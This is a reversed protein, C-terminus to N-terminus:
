PSTTSTATRASTTSAPGTGARGIAIRTRTNALRAQVYSLKLRYPEHANLRNRKAYVDPLLRRDHALSAACSRRSAWWGRRSRCSRSCSSWCARTSGCPGTPTCSWCRAPSPPRSTRTATATAAWGAAWCSRAPTRPSRHVRRRAGRPRARGAPRARRRPRAAGHVLGRRPGRRRRDAQRPAARRDALAPRRVRRAPRRGGRRRARGGVRRLIALVSQRSAETPHATFVPRLELRALVANVEDPDASALRQMIGHLPARGALEAARHRQEAINALQFFQSFASRWGCPPARTSARSCPPSPPTTVARSPSARSEKRVQEVLELLDPGGHLAITQGLMTSLRRIDARLADHGHESLSDPVTM